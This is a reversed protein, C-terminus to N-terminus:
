RPHKMSGHGGKNKSDNEANGRQRLCKAPYEEEPDWGRLRITITRGAGHHLAM